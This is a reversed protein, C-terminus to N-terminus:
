EEEDEAAMKEQQEAIIETEEQRKNEEEEEIEGKLIMYTNYSWFPFAGLYPIAEAISAGLMRKMINRAKSKKKSGGRRKGSIPDLSKHIAWTDFILVGVADLVEFDDLGFCILVIGILDFIIALGLIFVTEVTFKIKIPFLELIIM